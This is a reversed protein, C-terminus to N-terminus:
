SRARGGWTHVAITQDTVELDHPHKQWTSPYFVEPPFIRVDPRGQTLHTIYRPGSRFSVEDLIKLTQAFGVWIDTLWHSQREAGIVANCYVGPEEEAIFDRILLDDPLAKVPYIDCDVYIGGLRHLIAIRAVDSLIRPDDEASLLPLYPQLFYYPNQWTVFSWFPNMDRWNAWNEEYHVPIFDGFWVRHLIRPIM